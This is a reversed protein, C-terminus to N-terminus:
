GVNLWGMLQNPQLELDYSRPANKKGPAFLAITPYKSIKLGKVENKDSNMFAFQLIDNNTNFKEVFKLLNIALQCSEKLNCFLVLFNRQPLIIKQKFQKATIYHVGSEPLFEDVELPDESPYFPEVRKSRFDEIFQVLSSNTIAEGNFKFRGFEDPLAVTIFLDGNAVKGFAQEVEPDTGLEFVMFIMRHYYLDHKKNHESAIELERIKDKANDFKDVFLIM